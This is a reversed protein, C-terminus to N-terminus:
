GLAGRSHNESSTSQFIGIGCHAHELVLDSAACPDGCLPRRQPLHPRRRPLPLHSAQQRNHGVSHTHAPCFIHDCGSLQRLLRALLRACLQMAHICSHSTVPHRTSVLYEAQRQARPLLAGVFPNGYMIISEFTGGTATSGARPVVTVDEHHTAGQCLIGSEQM